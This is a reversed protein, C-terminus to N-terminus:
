AREGPAPRPATVAEFYHGSAILCTRGDPLTVTITWSGTEDSAFVEMMANGSTLGIGRRTEGYTTALRGVVAERTGCHGATEAGAEPALLILGAFGLSLAFLRQTM